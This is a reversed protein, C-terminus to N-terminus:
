LFSMRGNRAFNDDDVNGVECGEMEEVQHACTKLLLACVKWSKKPFSVVMAGPGSYTEAHSDIIQNRSRRLGSERSLFPPNRPPRTLEVQM